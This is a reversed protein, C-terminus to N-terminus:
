IETAMNDLLIGLNEFKYYPASLKSEQLGFHVSESFLHCVRPLYNTVDDPSYILKIKSWNFHKLLNTFLIGIQYMNAWMRTMMPYLSKKEMGFDRASAMSLMPINWWRTQRGIPAAAYDCSPGLFVHLMKKVFFSIAENMSEASSCNSDGYNIQIAQGPLYGDPANVKEVAIQIAPLVRKISYQAYDTSPLLVVMMVPDQLDRVGHTPDHLLLTLLGLQLIFSVSSM